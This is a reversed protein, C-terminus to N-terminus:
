KVCLTQLHLTQERQYDIVLQLANLLNQKLEDITAGQAIAEPMEQVQGVYFGDDSKEIIATYNM